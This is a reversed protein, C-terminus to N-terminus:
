TRTIIELAGIIIIIVTFAAGVWVKNNRSNTEIREELRGFKKEDDAVRRELDRIRDDKKGIRTHLERSTEEVKGHLREDANKLGQVDERLNRIEVTMASIANTVDKHDDSLGEIRELIVASQDM